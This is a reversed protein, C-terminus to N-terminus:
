FCISQVPSLNGRAYAVRLPADDYAKKQHARIEGRELVAEHFAVGCPPTANHSPERLVTLHPHPPVLALQGLM